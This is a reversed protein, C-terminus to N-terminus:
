LHAHPPQSILSSTCITSSSMFSLTCALQFCCLPTAHNLHGAQALNWALWLHCAWQVGHMM